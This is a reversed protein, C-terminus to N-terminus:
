FSDNLINSNSRRLIKYSISKEFVCNNQQKLFNTFIDLMIDPSKLHIHSKKM